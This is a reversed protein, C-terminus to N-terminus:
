SLFSFFILSSFSSFLLFSFLLNTPACFFTSVDFIKINSIIYDNNDDDNSDTTRAGCKCSDPGNIMQIAGPPLSSM